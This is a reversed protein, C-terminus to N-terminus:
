RLISTAKISRKTEGDFPMVVNMMRTETVEKTTSNSSLKKVSLTQKGIILSSELTM